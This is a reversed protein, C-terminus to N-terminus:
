ERDAPWRVLLDGAPSAAGAAPEVRVEVRQPPEAFAVGEAILRARGSADPTAAGLPLWRGGVLAWARYTRGAPAAPFNSFTLVALAGGRRFRYTAHTAPPVGPAATLRLAVADSSTLLTLAREDRALELRRAQFRVALAALAAALLVAAVLAGIKGRLSDLGARIRYKATGLPVGLLSAIQGHSLDDFYALGLAQRQVPPLEELARRLIERRREIWAEDAQGPSPDAVEALRDEDSDGRTQPRRSRRRLENAIRFHAIQLLWPRLPGRSPDFSGANRWVALFVDQVLEEATGRDVAQAAMGFVIPAYRAYLPGVSEERGASLERMLQEDTPSNDAVGSPGPFASPTM